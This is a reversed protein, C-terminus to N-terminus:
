RHCGPFYFFKRIESVSIYTNSRCQCFFNGSGMRFLATLVLLESHECFEAHFQLSQLEVIYGREILINTLEEVKELKMWFLSSRFKGFRDSSPLEHTLDQTFGLCLFNVYWPLLLVSQKHYIHNARRKKRRRCHRGNRVYGTNFRFSKSFDPAPLFEPLFDFAHLAHGAPPPNM